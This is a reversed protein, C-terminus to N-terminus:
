KAHSIKRFKNYFRIISDAEWESIYDGTSDSYFIVTVILVIYDNKQTTQSFVMDKRINELDM